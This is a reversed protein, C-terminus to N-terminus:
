AAECEKPSFDIEAIMVSMSFKKPACVDGRKGERARAPPATLVM